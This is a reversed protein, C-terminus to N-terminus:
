AQAFLLYADAWWYRYILDRRVARFGGAEIEASWAEVTQEYTSRGAGGTRAADSRFYGFLIPMLFGQKVREELAPDMHGTYEAVGTLYKDHILRVRERSLSPFVETRVDFEAVLLTACHESLWRFIPARETPSLNHLSWTAQCLDWRVDPFVEDMFSQITGEFGRAEVPPSHGDLSELAKPLLNAAPEVLDFAPRPRLHTRDLVGIIVQGDGPGIDLITAPQCTDWVAAIKKELADYMAVNGGGRIFAGFADADLYAGTEGGQAVKKLWRAGQAYLEGRDAISGAAEAAGELDGEAYRCVARYFADHMTM